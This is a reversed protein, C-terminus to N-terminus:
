DFKERAEGGIESVKGQKDQEAWQLASITGLV